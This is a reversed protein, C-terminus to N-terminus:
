GARWSRASKDRTFAYLSMTAVSHFRWSFRPTYTLIGHSGRRRALLVSNGFRIIYKRFYLLSQAELRGTLVASIAPVAHDAVNRLRIARRCGRPRSLWAGHRHFDPSSGHADPYAGSQASNEGGTMAGREHSGTLSGTMALRTGAAWGPGHSRRSRPVVAPAHTAPVRGAM